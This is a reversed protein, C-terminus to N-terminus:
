YVLFLIIKFIKQSNNYVRKSKLSVFYISILLIAISANTVFLSKPRLKFVEFTIELTLLILGVFLFYLQYEKASSKEKTFNAVLNNKLNYNIKYFKFILLFIFIYVIPLFTRFLNKNLSLSDVLQQSSILAPIYENDFGLSPAIYNQFIIFYLEM